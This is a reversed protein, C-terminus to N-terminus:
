FLDEVSKKLLIELKKGKVESRIIVKDYFISEVIYGKIELSDGAGHEMGNIIAMKNNGKEVYGTYSFYGSAVDRKGKIGAAGVTKSSGRIIFPDRHWESEARDIIYTETITTSNRSIDTSINSIFTKVEEDRKDASYTVIKKSFVPLLTYIGYLITLVMIALIISQRKLMVPMTFGYQSLGRQKYSNTQM